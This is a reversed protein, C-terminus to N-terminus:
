YRSLHLEFCERIVEDAKDYIVIKINDSKSHMVLKEDINKSSMFNIALTLKIKWTDSKKLRFQNRLDKIINDKSQKKHKRQAKPKRPENGGRYMNNVFAPEYYDVWM